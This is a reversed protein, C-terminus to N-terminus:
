QEERRWTLKLQVLSVVLIIAVLMWGIASAYGIDGTEFGMQFLYMVITVSYNTAASYFLVYPLEFLQFAGITGVLIMFLLVPRIGPITIHWFRAMRGAGDVEAAEYLERDVAQLAALFYVMAYGLSIWLAAMVVAPMALEPKGFWNVETGVAPLLFGIARNVLGHRQQLLLQFIVAVFVAGVLHSSFFAFRFFNRLRIRPSNLLVALGLSLPIQLSLFLVAFYTTNAVSLWFFRDGLLYRFNDLGIFTMERPGSTKYFSLVVSRGLPYLMFCCFLVVFPSLFLYPAARHQLRWLRESSM